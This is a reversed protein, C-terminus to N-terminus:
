NANPTSKITTESEIKVAASLDEGGGSWGGGGVKKNYFLSLSLQYVIYM